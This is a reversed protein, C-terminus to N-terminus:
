PSAPDQVILHELNNKQMEKIAQNLRDAAANIQANTKGKEAIHIHNLLRIAQEALQAHEPNAAIWENWLRLAEGDTQHHWALFSEDALLEEVTNAKINKM